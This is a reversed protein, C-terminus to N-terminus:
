AIFVSGNKLRVELLHRNSLGKEISILFTKVKEELLTEFNSIKEKTERIEEEREQDRKEL